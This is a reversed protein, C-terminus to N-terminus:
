GPACCATKGDAVRCPLFRIARQESVAIVQQANNLATVQWHWSDLNGDVVFSDCATWTFSPTAVHVDLAPNLSGVRQVVLEYDGPGAGAPATWEFSVAFGHGWNANTLSCGTSPDNQDITAGAAPTSLVIGTPTPTAGPRVTYTVPLSRPSAAYAADPLVRALVRRLGPTVFGCRVRARGSADATVDRSAASRWAGDEDQRFIVFRVIPRAGFPDLPRVTATFTVTTGRAITGPPVSSRLVITSHIRFDVDVPVNSNLTKGNGLQGADNAGWCKVAGERMLACSHRGGTTIAAVGSGLGAVQVPRLSRAATTGNGLQGSRNDGWCLAGGASALACTHSSNATIATVGSALGAVQVPTLSRTATTGTGLQGLDNSGWCRVAGGRMLACTHYVGLALAAVGGALGSVEVPTSSNVTSGDGLEGDPNYGWCNVRGETTLACTHGGGAAIARVGSRLGLVDVPTTRRTTTGDGLQGFENDGWCMVGGETTLACSHPSGLAIASAGGTLGSVAVPVSSNVTSGNGLEGADNAGWCRVGGGNTLACTQPGGADVAIAGSGLGTVDVPLRRDTTTGDGLQGVENWGWCRVAGSSTIACSHDSGAAIATIARMSAPTAVRIHAFGEAPITMTAYCVPYGCTPGNGTSTVHVHMLLHFGVVSAPRLSFDHANDDSDLPHSMEIFSSELTANSFGAAAGDITGPPPYGKGTDTDLRGCAPPPQAGSTGPCDVTFADRFMLLSGAPQAQYTNSAIVDDGQEPWRGDNDNDFEFGTNFVSYSGPAKVAVHLNAADNMVYLTAPVSSLGDHTPIALNFDIRAARDWEGAGMVGDIRATGWASLTLDQPSAAGIPTPQALLGVVIAASGLAALPGSIRRPANM